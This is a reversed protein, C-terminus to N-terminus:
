ENDVIKKALEVIEFAYKEKRSELIKKYLPYNISVLVIGILGIIIGLVFSATNNPGIVKMALCMGVGLILSAVIGFTYAFIMAPRKVKQDLKKLQDITRNDKKTYENALNEAYVKDTNM